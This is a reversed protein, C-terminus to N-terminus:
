YPEIELGLRSYANYRCNNGSKTYFQSQVVGIDVDIYDYVISDEKGPATRQIRGVLQEVKGEARFPMTVFARNLFPVDFGEGLLAFTCVLVTIEKNNLRAAQEAVYKKTYNGTAIGTKEWGTSILEYLIEAHAKRDTLVICFNGATAEQLVDGVILGNRSPNPVINEKLIRQINNGYVPKSHVTRYLVKPMVIGGVEEVASISIRTIEPGITQFMLNELKDRRYPTATLGYLYYPNLSSIVQLFTSAPCHHAEDLIVLGFRDRMEHLEKPRRVLTPILGITIWKGFKWKSDGVLGVDDEELEPLFQKIRDLAQYALARTHTLWLTPQGYLPVASLGLVTKGSGAPAVLLGEEAKYLANMAKEQYPRYQIAASGIDAFDFRTRQDVIVHDLDSIMDLLEKRMGRPIRISDDPLIDFNFIYPKLNGVWRGKSVAENFKPNEVKLIDVLHEQIQNPCNKIRIKNAITIEM